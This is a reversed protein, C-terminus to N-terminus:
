YAATPAISFSFTWSDVEEVTQDGSINLSHPHIDAPAMKEVHLFETVCKSWVCMRKTLCGRQQEDDATIWQLLKTSCWFAARSTCFGSKPWSFLECKTVHSMTFPGSKCHRKLPQCRHAKVTWCCSSTCESTHQSFNSTTCDIKMFLPQSSSSICLVTYSATTETNMVDGDWAKTLLSAVGAAALTAPHLDMVNGRKGHAVHSNSSYVTKFTPAAEQRSFSGSSYSRGQTLKERGGGRKENKQFESM